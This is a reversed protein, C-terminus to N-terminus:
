NMVGPPVIITGRHRLISRVTVNVKINPYIEDWIPALRQWSQNDQRRLQEGLNFIDAQLEDQSIRVTGEVEDKVIRSLQQNLISFSRPKSIDRLIGYESIDARVEIDIDARVRYGDAEMRISSFARRIGLGVILDPPSGPFPVNVVTQRVQGQEWLLGRTERPSLYGVLRGERFLATGAAQIIMETGQNGGSGTNRPVLAFAPVIAAGTKSNLRAMFDRLRIDPVFGTQYHTELIDIIGEAPIDALKVNTSLLEKGSVARAVIIRAARRLEFGRGPREMFVRVDWEALDEGLIFLQTHGYFPTRASELAVRQAAEASGHGTVPINVFPGTGGGQGGPATQGPPQPKLVQATVEVRDESGQPAPDIAVAIVMGLRNLEIRDWCSTLLILPLLVLLSLWRRKM